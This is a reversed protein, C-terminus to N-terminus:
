SMAIQRAEVRETKVDNSGALNMTTPELLDILSAVIRRGSHAPRKRLFFAPMKKNGAILTLPSAKRATRREYILM